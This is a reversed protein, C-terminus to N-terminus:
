DPFHLNFDCHSIVEHRNIHSDHFSLLYSISTLIHLSPLGPASNIPIYVPAISQFVNHLDMLFYCQLVVVVEWTWQLATANNLTALIHFFELHKEILSHIFFIYSYIGHFLILNYSFFLCGTMQRLIFPVQPFWPLLLWLPLCFSHSIM